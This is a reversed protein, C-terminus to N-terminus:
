LSASFRKGNMKIHADERGVGPCLIADGGDAGLVSAYDSADGEGAEIVVAGAGDGFLVCTNRDTM